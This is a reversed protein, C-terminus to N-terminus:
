YLNRQNISNRNKVLTVAKLVFMNQLSKDPSPGSDSGFNFPIGSSDTITITLKSLSAKPTIYNLVVHEFTKKDVNLFYGAKVASQLHLIAFSESVPKNPSIMTNELEDIKLLLYPEQLVNNKDPIVGNIIEISQINKLESPLTITYQNPNPFNTRNRDVSSIVVYEDRTTYEVNPENMLSLPKQEKPFNNMLDNKDYQNTNFETYKFTNYRDYQQGLRNSM